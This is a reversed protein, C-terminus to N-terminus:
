IISDTITLGCYEKPDDDFPIKDYIGKEIAVRAFFAFIRKFLLGHGYEPCAVHAMEHLTVYMVLNLKHLKDKIKKSRLCFVLQEGKNVSYSTYISDIKSEKYDTYKLKRDLQKIYKEMESYQKINSVLHERIININDRIRALMNAAKQKDELDRVLYYKDDIDSMVYKLPGSQFTMVFIIIVLLILIIIFRVGNM